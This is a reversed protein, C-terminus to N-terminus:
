VHLTMESVTAIVNNDSINLHLEQKKINYGIQAYNKMIAKYADQLYPIVLGLDRV